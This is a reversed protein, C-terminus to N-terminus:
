CTLELLTEISAKRSLLEEALAALRSEDATELWCEPVAGFTTRIAADPLEGIKMIWPRLSEAGEPEPLPWGRAPGSIHTDSAIRWLSGGFLGSQNIATAIWKSSERHFVAQRRKTQGAWRDVVIAGALDGPNTLRHFLQGPLFDYVPGQQPDVPYAIAAAMYEAAAEAAAPGSCSRSYQLQFRRDLRIPRVDAVRIGLLQLLRSGLWENVLPRTGSLPDPGKVVYHRGDNALVLAAQSPGRM